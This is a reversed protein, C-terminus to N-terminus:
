YKWIRLATDTNRSATAGSDKIEANCIRSESVESFEAGIGVQPKPPVDLCLAKGSM